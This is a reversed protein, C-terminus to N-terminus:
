DGLDPAQLIDQLEKVQKELNVYKGDIERKLTVMQNRFANAFVELQHYVDAKLEKYGREITTTRLFLKRLGSRLRQHDDRLDLNEVLRQLEEVQDSLDAPPTIGEIMSVLEQLKSSAEQILKDINPMSEINGSLNLIYRQIEVLEAILALWDSHDPPAVTDLRPRRGTRGDWIETPFKAM